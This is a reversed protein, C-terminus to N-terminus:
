RHKVEKVMEGRDRYRDKVSILQPRGAGVMKNYGTIMATVRGGYMAGTDNLHHQVRCRYTPLLPFIDGVKRAGFNGNGQEFTHLGVNQYHGEGAADGGDSLGVQLPVRDPKELDKPVNGM